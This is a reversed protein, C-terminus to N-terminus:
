DFLQRLMQYVDKRHAILIIHFIDKQQQYVIRYQGVRIRYYDSYGSLKEAKTQTSPNKLLRIKRALAIQDMKHIKKLEKEARPQLVIKM